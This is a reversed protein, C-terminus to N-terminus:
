SFCKFGHDHSASAWANAHQGSSAHDAFNGFAAHSSGSTCHSNFDSYGGGGALASGYSSSHGFFDHKITQAWVNSTSGAFSTGCSNGSFGASHHGFAWHSVNGHHDCVNSYGHSPECSSGQAHHGNWGHDSHDHHHHTNPTCSGGNHDPHHGSPKSSDAESILYDGAADKTITTAGPKFGDAVHIDNLTLTKNDGVNVVLSYTGDKNEVYNASTPVVGNAGNIAFQSKDSVNYLATNVTSENGNLVLTNRTGDDFTVSAGDAYFGAYLTSDCKLHVNMANDVSIPNAESGLTSNVLNLTGNGSLRDYDLKVNGHNNEITLSGGIENFQGLDVHSPTDVIINGGNFIQFSQVAFVNSTDDSCNQATIKLTGQDGITLSQIQATSPTDVVAVSPQTTGNVTVGSINDEHYNQPSDNTSWNKSDFFNNSNSGTWYTTAM